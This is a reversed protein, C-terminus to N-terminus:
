QFREDDNVDFRVMELSDHRDALYNPTNRRNHFYNWLKQYFIWLLLLSEIIVLILLIEFWLYMEPSTRYVVQTRTVVEVSSSSVNPDSDQSVPELPSETTALLLSAVESAPSPVLIPEEPSQVVTTVSVQSVQTDESNVTVNSILEIKRDIDIVLDGLLYKEDRSTSANKALVEVEARLVKLSEVSTAVKM